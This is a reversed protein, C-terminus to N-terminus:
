PPRHRPVPPLCSPESVGRLRASRLLFQRHSRFVRALQSGPPAAGRRAGSATAAPWAARQCRTGESPADRVCASPGRRGPRRRSSVSPSPSMLRSLAFPCFVWGGVARVCLRFGFCLGSLGRRSCPGRRACLRSVPFAGLRLAPLAALCALCQRPLAVPVNPLSLWGTRLGPPVDRPGKALPRPEM